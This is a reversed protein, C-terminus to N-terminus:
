KQLRTLVTSAEADGQDAAKKLWYIAQERNTECGQGNLYHLGLRCQASANGNTAQPQLWRVANVQTEEAKKKNAIARANAAEQAAKIQEPTLPPPVYPKGYDWLESADGGEIMMARVSVTQGVQGIMYHKLMITKDPVVESSVVVRRPGIGVASYAGVHQEANGQGAVDAYENKTVYTQLTVGDDLKKIIKGSIDHWLQSSRIDYIKGDVVRIFNTSVDVSPHSGYRTQAPSSTALGCLAGLILRTFKM